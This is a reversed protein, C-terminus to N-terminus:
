KEVGRRRDHRGISRRMKMTPSTPSRSREEREM